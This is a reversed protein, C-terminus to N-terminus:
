YKNMVQIGGLKIATDDDCPYNSNIVNYVAKYFLLIKKQFFFYVQIYLLHIAEKDKFKREEKLPLISTTRLVLRIEDSNKDVSNRLNKLNTSSLKKILEKPKSLTRNYKKNFFIIIM